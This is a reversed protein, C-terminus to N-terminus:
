STTPSAFSVALPAPSVGALMVTEVVATFSGSPVRAEDPLAKGLHSNSQITSEAGCSETGM